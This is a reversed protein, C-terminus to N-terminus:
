EQYIIANKKRVTNLKGCSLKMLLPKFKSVMHVFMEFSGKETAEASLHIQKNAVWKIMLEGGSYM